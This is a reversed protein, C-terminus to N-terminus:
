LVKSRDGLTRDIQFSRNVLSLIEDEAAAGFAHYAEQLCLLAQIRPQALAGGIDPAKLRLSRAVELGRNMNIRPEVGVSTHSYNM